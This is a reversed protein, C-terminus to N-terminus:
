LFTMFRTKGVFLKDVDFIDLADIMIVFHLLASSIVCKIQTSKLIGFTRRFNSRRYVITIEFKVLLSM